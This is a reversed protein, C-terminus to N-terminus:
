INIYEFNLFNHHQNKEEKKHMIKPVLTLPSGCKSNHPSGPVPLDCISRVAALNAAREMNVVPTPLVAAPSVAAAILTFKYKCVISKKLNLLKVHGLFITNRDIEVNLIFHQLFGRESTGSKTKIKLMQRTFDVYPFNIM